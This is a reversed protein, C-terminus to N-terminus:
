TFLSPLIMLLASLGILVFVPSLDLQAIPPIVKRVWRLPPECLTSLLETAPSYTTPAVWGLLVYIFMSMRYFQLSMALLSYTAQKALLAINSLDQSSLLM